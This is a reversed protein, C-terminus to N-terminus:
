NPDALPERAAKFFRQLLRRYETHSLGRIAEVTMGTVKALLEDDAEEMLSGGAFKRYEAITIKDFDFKTPEM